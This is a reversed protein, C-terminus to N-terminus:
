KKGRPHIAGSAAQYSQRSYPLLLACLPLMLAAPMPLSATNPWLKVETFLLAAASVLSLQEGRKQWFVGESTEQFSAWPM